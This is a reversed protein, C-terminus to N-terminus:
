QTRGVNWILWRHESAPSARVVNMCSTYVSKLKHLNAVEVSPENDTLSSPISNLVKLVIKQHLPTLGIM